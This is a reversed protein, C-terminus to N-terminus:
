DKRMDEVIAIVKGIAEKSLIALAITPDKYWSDYVIAIAAWHRNESLLHKVQKGLDNEESAGELETIVDMKKFSRALDPLPKHQQTGLQAIIKDSM